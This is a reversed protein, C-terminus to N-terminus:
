PGEFFVGLDMEDMNKNLILSYTCPYINKRSKQFKEPKMEFSKRLIGKYKSGGQLCTSFIEDFRQFAVEYFNKAWQQLLM